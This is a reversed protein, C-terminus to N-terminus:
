LVPALQWVLWVRVLSQRGVELTAIAPQGHPLLSVDELLCVCRFQEGPNAPQVCDTGM